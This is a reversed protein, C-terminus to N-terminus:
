HRYVVSYDAADSYNGTGKINPYSYGELTGNATLRLRLLNGGGKQQFEFTDQGTIRTWSIRDTYGPGSETMDSVSDGSVSIQLTDNASIGSFGQGIGNWQGNWTGALRAALSVAALPQAMVSPESTRTMASPAAIAPVV